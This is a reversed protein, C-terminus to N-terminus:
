IKLLIIYRILGLNKLIPLKHYFSNIFRSLWPIRAPILAINGKELVTFNFKEILPFIEKESVWRHPGEPMKLKLKELLELILSWKADAWSIMIKTGKASIRALEAFALHLNHLHELIDPLIIWGFFKESLIPLAEAEAQLYGIEKRNSYKQQAIKLMNFAIDIGLGKQPSLSVLLEGTGCGIEMLWSRSLDGLKQQYLGKLLSFYYSRRKKYQDYKISINEFHSKIKDRIDTEVIIDM